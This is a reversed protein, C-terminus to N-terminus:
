QPATCTARIHRATDRGTVVGRVASPDLRGAHVLWRLFGLERRVLEDSLLRENLVQEPPRGLPSSAPHVAGSCKHLDASTLAAGAGSM